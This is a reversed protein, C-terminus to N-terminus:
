RKRNNLREKIAAFDPLESSGFLEQVENPVIGGIDHLHQILHYTRRSEESGNSIEIVKGFSQFHKDGTYSDYVSRVHSLFDFQRLALVAIHKM